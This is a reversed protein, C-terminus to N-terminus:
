MACKGRIAKKVKKLCVNVFIINRFTKNLAYKIQVIKTSYVHPSQTQKTFMCNGVDICLDLEIVAHLTQVTGICM